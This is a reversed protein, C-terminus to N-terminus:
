AIREDKLWFPGTQTTHLADDWKRFLKRLERDRLLHKEKQDQISALRAELQFTEARLREAVDAPLSGALRFNVLFAAGRPQIHPLNRRYYERYDLNKM